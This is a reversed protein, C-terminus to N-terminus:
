AEVEKIHNTRQSDIKDLYFDSLKKANKKIDFGSKVIIASVDERENGNVVLGEVRRVWKELSDLKLKAVTKDILIGDKITDSIMCPLSAAQAEILALPLGEYLSPMVFVDMAQMLENVDNRSELITINNYVGIEKARKIINDKQTGSGVILLHYSKNSKLLERLLKLSFVHNKVAEMRGVQGILIKDDLGLEIRVKKRVKANYKYKSVDIANNIILCKKSIEKGYLWEASEKSCALYHDCYESIRRQLMKKAVSKMGYGNSTSHSHCITKLGNRKAIKLVISAVSRVHCHIIKYEPHARFFEKWQKAFSFYNYGKFYEDFIYVKGGLSEIEDKFFTENKRDIVFDFQIKSRDMNRYIGMIMTQSGGINLSGIYHLIRIPQKETEARKSLKRSMKTGVRTM